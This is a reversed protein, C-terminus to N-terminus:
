STTPYMPHWWHLIDIQVVPDVSSVISGDTLQNKFNQSQKIRVFHTNFVLQLRHGRAYSMATVGQGTIGHGASTMVKLLVQGTSQPLPVFNPCIAQLVVCGVDKNYSVDPASLLSEQKDDKRQRCTFRGPRSFKWYFHWMQKVRVFWQLCCVASELCELSVLSHSVTDPYSDLHVLRSTRSVYPPYFYHLARVVRGKLGHVRTISQPSLVLPLNVSPNYHRNYLKQWFQASHSVEHAGRCVLAFSSVDEPRIFQGILFWLDVPYVNGITSSDAVNATSSCSHLEGSKTLATGAASRGRSSCLTLEDRASASSGNNDDDDDNDDDTNNFESIDRDYWAVDDALSSMTLERTGSECLKKVESCWANSDGKKVRGSRSKIKDVAVACHAYDYLTFDSKTSSAQDVRSRARGKGRPM